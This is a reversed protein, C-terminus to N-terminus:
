PALVGADRLRQRLLDLKDGYRAARATGGHLPQRVQASSPGDIVTNATAHFALCAPDFPLDCFTLLRRTVAEPNEVLAEYCLDMVRGPYRELWFRTLRLFDICYDATDDLDCAFGREESFLQRYCGLCTEVPDRRVVIVRAAPLMTLAAGVLPWNLLSKDTSRPRERRWSETRALYDRGLRQWDGADAEAVWAPFPARRRTSEADLLTSLDKIENAGQVQPHAALIQEVLTSGSRPMSVIFIVERGQGADVPSPLPQAFVEGIARTRAREGLVDWRPRRARRSANARQFVDFAQAYDRLGELAKALTFGLLEYDHTGVQNRQLAQQLHSVDAADFTVTNLSGLGFWAEAHGPERRLVARFGSVAAEIEGLAAQAKALLLCAAPHEPAVALARRLAEASEAFRAQMSLVKGLNFWAMASEPTLKCARRFQVLAADVLGHEYLSIGLGMRLSADDPWAELVRQFCDVAEAHHGRCQATVGLMRLAVPDDPVLALASTLSREAVDFKRQQWEKRARTLLRRAVSSRRRQSLDHDLPYDTM